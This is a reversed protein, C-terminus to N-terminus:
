GDGSEKDHHFRINNTSCINELFESLPKDRHDSIVSVCGGAKQVTNALDLYTEIIKDLKQKSIKIPRYYEDM